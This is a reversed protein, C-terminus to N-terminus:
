GVALPQDSGPRGNGAPDGDGPGHRGPGPRVLGAPRRVARGGHRQHDYVVIECTDKGKPAMVRRTLTVGERLDCTMEVAKGNDTEEVPRAKFVDSWGAGHLGGQWSEAYGGVAPYGVEDPGGAHLQNAGGAPQLVLVRGGLGPVVGVSLAENGLTVVDYSGSKAGIRQWLAEPRTGGESLALLGGSRATAFFRDVRARYSPVVDAEYKGNRFQYPSTTTRKTRELLAWDLSLRAVNVRGLTAADDAVAAEAEDWLKDSAELLDDSLYRANPGEWIHVHINERVVKDRLLDLYKRIPGAAKGYVGALFEDMAKDQDYHPNWLFKAQMYGDLANFEGCPTTYTDEEFIGTVNNAIFFQINDRLVHRNPFPVLYNAFSTTYDWIWLRNCVKAWDQIDKRFGANENSDCTALPHSFCCEISCLRVIVNPRPRVTKPAKRTYQYALTDIAKDPFEDKVADAIKNVFEILPGSESGERRVIAQCNECQCAGGTDNQSVSYVFAEPHERMRKRVEETAIRVVDPNTLCLQYYGNMRKGGILSFYEPHDAYYKAPPVLENFTHVFGFYQIKGGHKAELRGASSNVRNRACWDGDFCDMVFPERYELAPIMKENLPGVVLERQKPIRSVEPTFWRCGLYDELLGFVSYVTGRQPGGILLLHPGRTSLLYGEAGLEPLPARVGLKALHANAGLVIEHASVPTDDTAIPLTAGSIEKLWRQLEDAAWKVAPSADRAIVIRFDSRGDNALTLALAQTQAPAPAPLLCVALALPLAFHIPSM